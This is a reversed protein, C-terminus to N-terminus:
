ELLGDREHGVGHLAGLIVGAFRLQGGGVNGGVIRELHDRAALVDQAGEALVGRVDGEEPVALDGARRRHRRRPAGERVLEQVVVAGAVARRRAEEPIWVPVMLKPLLSPSAVSRAM